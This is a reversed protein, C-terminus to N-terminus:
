GKKNWTAISGKFGMATRELGSYLSANSINMLELDKLIDLKYRKDIIIHAAVYRNDLEEENLGFLYFLGNQLKMRENDKFPAVFHGKLLDDGIIECEFGPYEGRIEHVFKHIISDPSRAFQETIRGKHNLCFERLKEQENRRFCPLCALMLARDSNHHLIESKKVRVVIVDGNAENHKDEAAFFLSVLPNRSFDLLRTSTGYHQMKVLNSLDSRKQYEEPYDILISHYQENETNPNNGRDRVVSPQLKYNSDSHGRFLLVEDSAFSISKISNWFEVFSSVSDSM